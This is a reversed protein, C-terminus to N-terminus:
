DAAAVLNLNRRFLPIKGCSEERVDADFIDAIETHQEDTLDINFAGLTSDLQRLSSFGVLPSTVVPCHRVWAIALQAPTVGLGDAFAKFKDLAEAHRAILGQPRQKKVDLAGRSGEPIPGDKTYKGSLVGMLLSRYVTIAVNATKAQPLIEVEIGREIPNYPVQHCTMPSWGEVAAIANFHEVLWAPCNCCGVARAKGAVVADNFASMIRRPEMGEKPFHMLYLDVYDTQLRELSGDLEQGIDETETFTPLKTAIVVQDRRGQLIRGLMSEGAGGGYAAATDIFNAGHEVAASIIRGAEAEDCSPGFQMTGLCLESAEVGSKGLLVRKM